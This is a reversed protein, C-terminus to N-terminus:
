LHTTFTKRFTHVTVNIRIIGAKRAYGKARRLVFREYIRAGSRCLFLANKDKSSIHRKNREKLWQNYIEFGEDGIYCERVGTKGDVILKGSPDVAGVDLNILEGVRCGNQYLITFIARDQLDQITDFFHYVEEKTLSEVEKLRMKPYSVGKIPNTQTYGESVLFAFFRRNLVISRRRTAPSIGSNKLHYLYTRFDRTTVELADKDVFKLFKSVEFRYAFLTAPALNDESDLKLILDELLKQNTTNM